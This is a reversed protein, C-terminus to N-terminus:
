QVRLVDAPQVRVIRGAAALAAAFAALVLSVAAAGLVVPGAAGVGTVASRLLSVGWLAAPLGACVGALGVWLGRTAFGWVVRAPEAGIAIRISIEKKQQTVRYAASAFIGALALIIGLGGVAATAQAAVRMPGRGSEDVQEELTRVGTLAGEPAVRATIQRLPGAFARPAGPTRVLITLGSVSAKQFLPLFVYPTAAVGADLPNLRIDDAVGVVERDAQEQRIRVRRGVPNEGPWLLAAASRNVVAVPQARSDDGPVLGRGQLIPIRLTEFYGDSVWNYPLPTWVGAQAQVDLTTRVTTAFPLWALAAGASESRVEHLLTRALRFFEDKSTAGGSALDPSGILVGGASYGVRVNGAERLTIMLVSASVLVAMACAVQGCLFLDRLGTRSARGTKLGSAVGSRAAKIAPAVGALVATILGAAMGIGLARGDTTLNLVPRFIYTFQVSRLWETVGLAVPVSLACACGALVTHEVILQQLLRFRSAGVAARTSMEHQRAASRALLLNALNFCAIAVATMSVAFLLWLFRLTAERYAPFFRAQVAPIALLRSARTGTVGADVRSATVDLAAQFQAVSVNPRLRALMMLMQVERRNEYDKATNAPFLRNFQSLPTWFSPTDGWDLLMGQYGSPMVGVITVPVGNMWAVSGLVSEGRQFRSEWLTYSALAVPAAGPRDDEPTLPRGLVPAIRAARFYDGTVLETNMAEGGATLRVTLGTRLYAATSETLETLSAVDRFDPYSDSLYRNQAPSYSYVAAVRGPDGIGTARFLVADALTLIAAACGIALALPLIAAAAFGPNLRLQRFGFRVDQWLREVWGWGRMERLVEGTRARNGFRAQAAARAVSSELGEGRLKEGRMALHSALEDEVDQEFQRRHILARWRLKFQHFGM